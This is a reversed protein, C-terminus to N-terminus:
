RNEFNRNELETKPGPPIKFHEPPTPSRGSLTQARPSGRRGMEHGFKRFTVNQFSIAAYLIQNKLGLKGHVKLNLYQLYLFM